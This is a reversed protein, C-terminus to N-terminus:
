EMRLTVVPDVRMARRAPVYCAALALTALLPPIAALLAVDPPTGSGATRAASALTGFLIRTVAWAGGLGLVTGVAVLLFGEKMVLRLVDGGRAGLAMRIGIERRRQAVSYATVGALGLAALIAGVVGIVGYTWMTVRYPFTANDVQETMSRGNFLTIREDMVAVERRVARATDFGPAARMMVTLGQVSPRALDAPRLPFYIVPRAETKERSGKETENRAVGIVEFVRRGEDLAGFRDNLMRGLNFPVARDDSIEIRRGLPDQGNWANRALQESVIVAMSGPVADEKRFARGLLIPLGITEFYGADALRKEASQVTGANAAIASFTVSGDGSYSMPTTRVISVAASSSLGKLRDLFETLFAKAQGASYGDRLPDLSVLYLNGPSFGVRVGYTRQYGLVLYVTLLLLTLSAAIQSSVLLNRPSLLRYRRLPAPGGEKLSPTLDTRTARLAPAIGCALGTSLTLALAFLLVRGDPEVNFTIPMPYAFTVQSAMHMLWMSLLYGLIGAGAALMMSETLLQRILRARGAGLALRVAIEKRRDAARATTMAAVNCATILLILGGLLTFFSLIVPVNRKPIPLLKGGPLLTVRRGKQGKDEEGYAQELQRAVTDLEAQARSETVGPHLRAVVQFPARDRRELVNDALEPAVRPDAGVPIWLDAVYLMPSAGLFDKPGVGIVTCPQGNIRLTKGIVSPDSGLRSEWFRHSIVVTAAQGSQELEGEFARGMAPRVGLTSFYSPTVLHGWTRETRGDVSVGFPAPALYAMSASFLDARGRYRRYVPFSSPGEVAVLQAPKRVGPIDRLVTGNMDSFTSTAVGIGLTLSALAVFTYGPSKALVRLGYRVDQRLEALHEAPVRIAIDLLMRGLGFVGHRRWVPEIAEETVQVMEEEWANRFQYPFARALSRYLRLTIEVPKTVPPPPEPSAAVPQWQVGHYSMEKIGLDAVLDQRDEYILKAEGWGERRQKRAWLWAGAFFVLYILFVETLQSTAAVIRSLLPLLFCLVIVWSGVVAALSRKGPVYSCAFPLQQWSYFRMEFGTLAVLCQLTTLRFALPWGLLPGAVLLTVLHIPAIVLGIIFREVASMWERRGQSENIQFLWNAPLEAPMSFAHRVGALVIWTFGLPWYLVVFRLLAPWGSWVRAAGALLVSNVLIALAAGAYALLVLRHMRSRALTRVMFGLIAERRPDRALLRLPSWRWARPRAIADPTEVLLTRYRRYAALYTLGAVVLVCAAAELSKVALAEFFPDRDGTLWRHLGLFWVPPAWAAFGPLRAVGEERWDVVFFSYLGAFFFLALLATQVYVSLRTFLRAPLGNILLGQIAVVAFFVFFCGLGSTTAGAAARTSLPLGAGSDATFQHPAMVSPLISMTGTIVTALLLVSVFRAVFVQRGRVPMGALALYDRRSPFLSQWALLALVGTIAMVLTLLAVEDAIAVARLTAPTKAIARHYYPPDLLLMGAPIALAFASVAVTRWQGRATFMESDFMRALFHRVLEFNTGHTEELWKM